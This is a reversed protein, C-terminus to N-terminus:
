RLLISCTLLWGAVTAALPTDLLLGRGSGQHRHVQGLYHLVGFVVFSLTWLFDHRAVAALNLEIAYLGYFVITCAAGLALLQDLFAPAHGRFTPDGGGADPLDLRRKAVALFFALAGSCLLIWSSAPVQVAQTGALVRIVFGATVLLLDLVPLHKLGLSYGLNLALYLALLGVGPPRWWIALLCLLIAGLVLARWAAAPTIVGSALPRTRKRPHQRDSERDRLDNFLYVLSSALCFLAFAALAAQWATPDSWRAGFFLGALVFLNKPWQHIRILQLWAM